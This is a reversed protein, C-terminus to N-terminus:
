CQWFCSDVEGPKPLLQLFFICELVSLCMQPKCHSNSSSADVNNLNRLLEELSLFCLDCLPYSYCLSYAPIHM